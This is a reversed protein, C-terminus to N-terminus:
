KDELILLSGFDGATVQIDSAAASQVSNEREEIEYGPEGSQDLVLGLTRHRKYNCQWSATTCPKNVPRLLLVPLDQCTKM